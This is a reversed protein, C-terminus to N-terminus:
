PFMPVSRQLLLNKMLIRVSIMLITRKRRVPFFRQKIRRRCISIVGYAAAGAVASFLLFKGFKKSM